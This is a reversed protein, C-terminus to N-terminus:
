PEEDEAALAMIELGDGILLAAAPPDGIWRELEFGLKKVRCPIAPAIAKFCVVGAAQDLM